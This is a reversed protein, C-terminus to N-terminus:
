LSATFSPASDIIFYSQTIPCSAFFDRTCRLSVPELSATFESCMPMIPMAGPPVMVVKSTAASDRMASASMIPGIDVQPLGKAKVPGVKAAGLDDGADIGPKVGIVQGPQNRRLRQQEVHADIVIAEKDMVQELAIRSDFPDVFGGTDSVPEPGVNMGVAMTKAPHFPGRGEKTLIQLRKSSYAAQAISM